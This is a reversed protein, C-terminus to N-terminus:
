VILSCLRLVVRDFLVLEGIFICNDLRDYLRCLCLLLFFLVASLLCNLNGRRFLFILDCSARNGYVIRVREPVLM